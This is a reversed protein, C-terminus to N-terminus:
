RDLSLCGETAGELGEIAYRFHVTEAKLMTEGASEGVHGCASLTRGPL